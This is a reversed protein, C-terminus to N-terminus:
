RRSCCYRDGLDDDNRGARDLHLGLAVSGEEDFGSITNGALTFQGRVAIAEGVGEAAGRSILNDRVLCTAGGYSDLVLPAM